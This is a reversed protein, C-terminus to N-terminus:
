RGLLHRAANFAVSTELSRALVPPIALPARLMSGMLGLEHAIWKAPVPNTDASLVDYLPKLAEDLRAAEEMDGRRIAECMGRVASPAVNAAVSIVGSGGAAM